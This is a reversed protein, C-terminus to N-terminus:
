ESEAALVSRDNLSQMKEEPSEIVLVYMCLSYERLRAATTRPTYAAAMVSVDNLSHMEEEPSEIVFKPGSSVNAGKTSITEDSQGTTLHTSSTLNAHSAALHRQPTHALAPTSNHNNNNSHTLNSNNTNNSAGSHSTNM